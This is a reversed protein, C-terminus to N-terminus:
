DEMDIIATDGIYNQCKHCVFSLEVHFMLRDIHSLVVIEDRGKNNVHGCKPCKLEYDKM